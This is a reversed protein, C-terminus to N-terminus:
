QFNGRYSFIGERSPSYREFGLGIGFGEGVKDGVVVGLFGLNFIFVAEEFRDAFAEGVDLAGKADRDNALIAGTFEDARATAGGEDDSEALSFVEEGRIDAGKGVAGGVNNVEVVVFNDVKTGVVEGDGGGGTGVHFRDNLL